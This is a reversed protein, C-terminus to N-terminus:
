SSSTGLSQLKEDLIRAVLLEGDLPMGSLHWVLISDVLVMIWLIGLRGINQELDKDSSGLCIDMTDIDNRMVEDGIGHERSGEGRKIM